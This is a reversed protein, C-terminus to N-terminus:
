RAVQELQVACQVLTLNSHKNLVTTKEGTGSLVM